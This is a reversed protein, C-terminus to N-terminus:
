SLAYAMLGTIVLGTVGFFGYEVREQMAEAGQKTSIVSMVICSLGLILALFLVGLKLTNLIDNM